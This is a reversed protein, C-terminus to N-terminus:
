PCVARDAGQLCNVVYESAARMEDQTLLKSFNPMVVLGGAVINRIGDAGLAVVVPDTLDAPLAPTYGYDDIMRQLVPGDGRGAPGHCMACNVNYLHQGMHPVAVTSQPPPFWAVATEPVSLRPPEHAKFSKQYHMEYFIDLPYSGQACGLALFLTSLLTLGLLAPRLMARPAPKGTKSQLSAKKTTANKM